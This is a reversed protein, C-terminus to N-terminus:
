AIEDADAKSCILDALAFIGAIDDGVDDVAVDIVGVNAVDDAREASKVSPWSLRVSIHMRDLLNTFADVFRDIEAAGAHQHLAPQMRIKIDLPVLIQERCEM